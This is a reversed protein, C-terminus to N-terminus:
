DVGWVLYLGVDGPVGGPFDLMRAALRFDQPKLDHEWRLYLEAAEGRLTAPWTPAAVNIERGGDSCLQSPFRLLLFEKEGSRAAERARQLLGRWADDGIHQGILAAVQRRQQEAAARNHERREESEAREHDAVLGRFAAATLGALAPGSKAPAAPHEAEAPEYHLFRREIGAVADAIIGAGAHAAPEEETPRAAFAGLLDARSVIGVVRGDRLVPVRKIRYDTLLRAIEAIDTAEDISVVPATMVERARRGDQRLGALFDPSLAEGEALLALWWDRRADRDAEDRGILDGESVMGLPVGAADVIPVASIGRDHLLRAVERTPTDPGVSVVAATMVDKAKM